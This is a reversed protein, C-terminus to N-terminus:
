LSGYSLSLHLGSRSFSFWWVPRSFSEPLQQLAAYLVATPFLWCGLLFTLGPSNPVGVWLCIVSSNPALVFPVGTPTGWLSLAISFAMPYFQYPSTFSSYISVLGGSGDVVGWIPASVGSPLWGHPFSSSSPSRAM